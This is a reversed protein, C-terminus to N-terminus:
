LILRRVPRVLAEYREYFYDQSGDDFGQGWAGGSSYQTSTLYWEKEFQDAVNAMCLRADTRSMLYFDKHGEIELALIEKCIDSGAEALAITNAMGNHDSCAGKVDVGYTGLARKEFIAKPDTPLILRHDPMGDYGRGVGVYIGGQGKWYEGIRPAEEARATAANKTQPAANADFSMLASLAAAALAPGGLHIHVNQIHM